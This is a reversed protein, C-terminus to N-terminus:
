NAGQMAPHDSLNHEIVSKKCRPCRIRTAPGLDSVGSLHEVEPPAHGFIQCDTTM